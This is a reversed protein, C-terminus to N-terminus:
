IVHLSNRSELLIKSILFFLKSGKILKTTLNESLTVREGVLMVAVGLGPLHLERAGCVRSTKGNDFLQRRLINQSVQM